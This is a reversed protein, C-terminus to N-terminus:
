IRLRGGHRFAGPSRGPANITAANVRCSGLSSRRPYLLLHLPAAILAELYSVLGSTSTCDSATPIGSRKLLARSDQKSARMANWFPLALRALLEDGECMSGLINGFCHEGLGHSLDVCTPAEIGRGCIVANAKM